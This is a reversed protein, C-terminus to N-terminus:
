EFLDFASDAFAVEEFPRSLESFELRDGDASGGSLRGVGVRVSEGSGQHPPGGPGRGVGEDAQEPAFAVVGPKTKELEERLVLGDGFLSRGGIKRLQINSRGPTWPQMAKGPAFAAM